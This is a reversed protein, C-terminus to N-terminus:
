KPNSGEVIGFIETPLYGSPYLEILKHLLTFNRAHNFITFILVILLLVAISWHADRAVITVLALILVGGIIMGINLGFKEWLYRLLPNLEILKYPKNPQWKKYESVYKWTMALDVVSLTILVILLIQRWDM